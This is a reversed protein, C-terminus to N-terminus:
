HRGRIFFLSLSSAGPKMPFAPCRGRQGSDGDVIGLLAHIVDVGIGQVIGTNAAVRRMRFFDRKIDRDGIDSQDVAIVSNPRAGCFISAVSDHTHVAADEPAADHHIPGAVDATDLVDLKVAVKPAALSEASVEIFDEGVHLVMQFGKDEPSGIPLIHGVSKDEGGPNSITENLCGIAGGIALEGADSRSAVSFATRTSATWCM